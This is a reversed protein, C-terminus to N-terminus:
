NCNAPLTSVGAPNVGDTRIFSPDNSIRIGAGHQSHAGAPQVEEHVACVRRDREAVIADRQLNGVYVELLAGFGFADVECFGGAGCTTPVTGAAIAAKLATVSEETANDLAIFKGTALNRTSMGGNKMIEEFLV